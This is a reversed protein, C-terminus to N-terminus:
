KQKKTLNRIGRIVKGNALDIIASAMDHTIVGSSLPTASRLPMRGVTQKIMQRESKNNGARKMAEKTIIRYLLKGIPYRRMDHLSNELTFPRKVRSFVLPLSEGYLIEFSTDDIKYEDTNYYNKNWNQYLNLDSVKEGENVTITKFLTATLVNIGFYFVYTAQEYVWEKRLPHFLKLDEKKVELKVTTEEGKALSVKCFAKLEKSPSFFASQLRGVYIGVVEQGFCDGTNKVKIEILFSDIQETFNIVESKFTTYSLGYGFPFLTPVNFTDYYRYGVYLSETYYVNERESSFEKGPVSEKLSLPYTESLKGSPNAIGFLLNFSASGVAEGALHNLLVSDVKSLWPMLVPAGTSLLVVIPKKTKALAEILANHSPPMDLTTRDFGEAEASNPLGAAIVIIDVDASLNLAEAILHENIRTENEEYGDGYVFNIGEKEFVDYLTTLTYPNVRSSGSGQYRPVKAFNGFLGIISERKLPLVGNENKLLVAAEEALKEAIQYNEEYSCKAKKGKRKSKAIMLRLVPTISIDIDASTLRGEEIAKLLSDSDQFGGPMELNLGAKISDVINVVAGWDSMILGKFKAKNRLQESLLSPNRSAHTGNVQNYSCMIATPKAKKIVEHFPKLYIENLAREDVIANVTLRDNEQNNVAYHKITAGVGNEELGQVLKAGLAATLFPDESFYEFNRGCLPSRKINLGPGLLLDVGQDHCERALAKGLTHLAEENFTSALASTTPFCTAPISGESLGSSNNNEPKRVGFPGDNLELAKLGFARLEVSQWFNAGSLLKVKEQITLTHLIKTLKQEM